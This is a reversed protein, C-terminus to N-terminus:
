YGYYIYEIFGKFLLAENLIREIATLVAKVADIFPRELSSHVVM